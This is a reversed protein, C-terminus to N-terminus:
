YVKIFAQFIPLLKYGAFTYVAMIPLSNKLNTELSTLSIFLISLIIISFAILELFIKANNFFQVSIAANSYKAKSYFEDCVKSKTFYLRKLEGFTEIIKKYM